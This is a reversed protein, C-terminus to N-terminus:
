GKTMFISSIEFGPYLLDKRKAVGQHIKRPLGNIERDRNSAHRRPSKATKEREFSSNNIKSSLKKFQRDGKKIILSNKLQIFLHMPEYHM